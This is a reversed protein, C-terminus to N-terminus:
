FFICIHYDYSGSMGSTLCCKGTCSESKGCGNKGHTHVANCQHRAVRVYTSAGLTMQYSLDICKATLHSFIDVFRKDLGLHEIFGFSRGYM